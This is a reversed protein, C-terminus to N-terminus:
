QFNFVKDFNSLAERTLKRKGVSEQKRNKLGLVSYIFVQKNYGKILTKLYKKATEKGYSKYFYVTNGNLIMSERKISFRDSSVSRGGLHILKASPVSVVKYDTNKKVRFTFEVEEAYMFIDEDFGGIKDFIDGRIMMDAGTIYGVEIPKGLFNYQHNMGLNFIKNKLRFLFSFDRKVTKLSIIDKLYSHCPRYDGDLLNGGCIGCDPNNEMYVFLEYIFNETFIIDTNLWLVYKGTAESRARNFAKSTGLNEKAMILKIKDGFIRKLEEGSNDPSKNDIVIVEFSLGKTYEYLGELAKVTLDLTNYNIMIISVDM